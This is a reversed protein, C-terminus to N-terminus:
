GKTYRLQSIEVREYIQFRFTTGREPLAQGYLGNYPTSSPVFTSIGILPEMAGDSWILQKEKM